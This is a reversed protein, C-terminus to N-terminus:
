QTPCGGDLEGLAEHAADMDGVLDSPPSGASQMQTLNAIRNRDFM